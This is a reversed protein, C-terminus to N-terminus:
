VKALVVTENTQPALLDDISENNAWREEIQRIIEESRRANEDYEEATMGKDLWSQRIIQLAGQYVQEYHAAQADETQM